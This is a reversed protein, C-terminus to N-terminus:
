RASLIQLIKEKDIPNAEAIKAAEVGRQVSEVIGVFSHGLKKLHEVVPNEVNYLRHSLDM